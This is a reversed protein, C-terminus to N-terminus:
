GLAWGALPQPTGRVKTCEVWIVHLVQAVQASDSVDAVPYWPGGLQGPAVAHTIVDAV